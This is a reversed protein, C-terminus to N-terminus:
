HIQKKFITKFEPSAAEEWIVKPNRTSQQRKVSVALHLLTKTHRLHALSGISDDKALYANEVEINVEAISKVKNVTMQQM